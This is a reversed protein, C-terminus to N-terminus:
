KVVVLKKSSVSQGDVLLHYVYTGAPLTGKPIEVQGEGKVELTKSLVETGTISFVRLQAMFATEPVFYKIITTKTYPNPQNQELRAASSTSGPEKGTGKELATLRSEMMVIINKLAENESKLEKAANVLMYTLANPDYDLYQEQQGTSDQYTFTGVTYPAIEQMDQALVGVFQAETQIGAKGNYRFTVPKIKLLVDLGDSYSAIDKKLRQDSAVIWSGGGVKAVSASNVHLRYAPAATGIGVKTNNQAGNVGNISGLVLSNSTSVRALNGIATANQLDSASPGALYGIATLVSGTTNLDGAQYGIFTNNAGSTNQYGTRHGVFSNNNSTTNYGAYNGLFSNRYGTTNRYGAYNGMMSNDYGSVNSYGAEYGIFNNRLGNDNKYGAKYGVFVNEYGIKNNFGARYGLFNNYTGYSSRGADVGIQVSYVGGSGSNTGANYSGQACLTSGSLATLLGLASLHLATKM